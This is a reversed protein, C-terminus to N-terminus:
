KLEGKVRLHHRRSRISDEGRNLEKAINKTTYGLQILKLLKEDEDKSWPKRKPINRKSEQTHGLKELLLRNTLELQEYYKKQLELKQSELAKYQGLGIKFNKEVEIFYARVERGRKTRSAMAIHKAADITLIYEKSPRGGKLNEGKQPFVIYDENEILNLTSIQRKIWDSFDKKIELVTHLDRANVSNVEEMGIVATQITILASM